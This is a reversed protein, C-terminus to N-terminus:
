TDFSCLYLAHNYSIETFIETSKRMTAQHRTNPILDALKGSFNVYNMSNTTRPFMIGLIFYRKSRQAGFLLSIHCGFSSVRRLECSVIAANGGRLESRFIFCRLGLQM